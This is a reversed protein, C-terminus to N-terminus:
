ELIDFLTDASKAPFRQRMGLPFVYARGKQWRIRTHKTELDPVARFLAIGFAIADTSAGGRAKNWANFDALLDKKPIRSQRILAPDTRLWDEVDRSLSTKRYPRGCCRCKETM